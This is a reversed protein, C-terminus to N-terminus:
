RTPRVAHGQEGRGALHCDRRARALRRAEVPIVTTTQATAPDFGPGLYGYNLQWGVLRESPFLPSLVLLWAALAGVVIGAVVVVVVM